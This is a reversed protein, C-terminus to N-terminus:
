AYEDIIILGAGGAGGQAGTGNSGQVVGGSGGCGRTNSTNGGSTGSTWPAGAGLYSLGGDGGIGGGASYTAFRGLGGVGNIDGTSGIGAGGSGQFTVNSATIAAGFSGGAGGTASLLAGFSSSGGNGGAGSGLVGGAGAAGITMTQGTAQAITLRRRSWGGGGGGAGASMQGAGTPACGGGGGGGAIVTSDLFNTGATAAYTATATIIQRNIWRGTAQGFQIAHQSMTAPGVQLAAGTCELLVFQSLTSNYVVMCRGNAVIEGGQLASHAAGVVPTAGLGNVNLTTAGTNAFKAKVWLVMGDTLATVAPTFTVAMTNATGTDIAYILGNSRMALLIQNYATKSPTIGAAACINLLEQQLANLFSARAYTAAQGLAPNGETFFGPTGAAEPTPMVAVATADDIAFM